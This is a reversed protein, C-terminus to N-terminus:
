RFSGSAQLDRTTVLFRKDGDVGVPLNEWPKVLHIDGDCVSLVDTNAYVLISQLPHNIKRQLLFFLPFSSLNQKNYHIYYIIRNPKKTM